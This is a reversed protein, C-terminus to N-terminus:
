AAESKKRSFLDPRLQERTVEGKLAREIAIAWEGSWRGRAIAKSIAPQSVGCAEAM